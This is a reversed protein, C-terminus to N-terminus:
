ARLLPPNFLREVELLHAKEIAIADLGLRKAYRESMLSIIGMTESGALESQQLQTVAYLRQALSELSKVMGRNQPHMRAGALSAQM